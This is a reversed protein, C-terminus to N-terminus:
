EKKGDGQEKSLEYVAAEIMANLESSVVDVDVYLGRAALYDIVYQKKEEGRKGGFIQEAAYVAIKVLTYINQVQEGSLRTKIYPLFLGTFLLGLVSIILVVIQTIDM